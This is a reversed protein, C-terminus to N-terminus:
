LLNETKVFIIYYALFALIGGVVICYWRLTKDFNPIIFSMLGYLFLVGGTVAMLGAIILLGLYFFVTIM